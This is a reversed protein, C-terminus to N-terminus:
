SRRSPTPGYERVPGGAATSRARNDPAPSASPAASLSAWAKAEARIRVFLLVANLLSFVAAYLVLGFALPLIAIEAAVIWYNPHRIFRYPGRRVADEGPVVIIRTTWRRGLTALVSARGAEVVLFLAIWVLSPPTAPALYWLGALWTAHLAVIAPYHAAGHEVGGAALLRATNRRAHVLEGLRELTVAALIAVAFPDLSM